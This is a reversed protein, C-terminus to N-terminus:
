LLNVLDHFSNITGEHLPMVDIKNALMLTYLLTYKSQLLYKLTCWLIRDLVGKLPSFLNTMSTAM